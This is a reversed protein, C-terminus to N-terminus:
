FESIMQVKQRSKGTFHLFYIQQLHLECHTLFGLLRVPCQVACQHARFPLEM